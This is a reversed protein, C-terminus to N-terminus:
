RNSRKKVQATKPVAQKKKPRREQQKTSCVLASKMLPDGTDSPMIVEPAEAASTRCAEVLTSAMTTEAAPAAQATAFRDVELSRTSTTSFLKAVTCGATRCAGQGERCALVKVM